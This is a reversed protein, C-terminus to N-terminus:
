SKIGTALITNNTYCYMVLIYANGRASTFPFQGPLDTSIMGNLENFKFVAVGVKHKRNLPIPQLEMEIDPEMISEMLENIEVIKDGPTPRIGKRIMHLHGMVSQVSKPLHKQVAEVTLGLFSSLWGEKIANTYTKVPLEGM